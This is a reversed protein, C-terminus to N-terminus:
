RKCYIKNNKELGFAAYLTAYTCKQM